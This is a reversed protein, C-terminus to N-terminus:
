SLVEDLASSLDRGGYLIRYIAVRSGEVSFAITVRGDLGFIRLGPYLEDHQTGRESFHSLSRYRAEIRRIFGAAAQHSSQVAIWDYIRELDSQAQPSLSIEFTRM